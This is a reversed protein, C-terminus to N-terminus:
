DLELLEASNNRLNDISEQSDWDFRSYCPILQNIKTNFEADSSDKMIARLVELMATVSTSAGPSAGLLTSLTKEFNTIIETGFELKGGDKDDKKIIQVRQGATYTDWDEEQASPVFKRLEEMKQTKTLLVQEVLYQTLDRNHWWAGILSRINTLNVSEPLDLFSGDKLFKTSFGAFPGFLICEEGDIVRLDLHPVSMPPAGSAAKGYVKSRHLRILNENKSILWEGSVPFGGYGEAEKIGSKELLNLSYGGAGIFLFDCSVWHKEGTMRNKVKIDWKFNKESPKTDKVEQYLFVDVNEKETLYRELKRTLTGFDVDTGISMKTAASPYETNNEDDRGIYVLPMWEAIKEPINAFEMQSFLPNERLAEYRKKLFNGDKEGFVLSEHPCTRIFDSPNNIVNKKVLTAWFSKSVEFQKAIKLAKEISIEGNEKEPTYNLECYASHGTGANNLANTSEKAFRGLREFIAIKKDPCMEIILTALTVSMIGGGVLIIDYFETPVRKVIQKM